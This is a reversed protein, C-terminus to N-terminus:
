WSVGSPVLTSRYPKPNTMPCNVKLNGTVVTERSLNCCGVAVIYSDGVSCLYGRINEWLLPEARQM